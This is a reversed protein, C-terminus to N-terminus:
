RRDLSNDLNNALMHHYGSTGLGIARYKKNTVEAFPVSYYNLDIVNDMARIQTEVVYGYSKMMKLM